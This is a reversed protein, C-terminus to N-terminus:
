GREGFVGLDIIVDSGEFNSTGHVSTRSASIPLIRRQRLGVRPPRARRIPLIFPTRESGPEPLPAPEPTAFPAALRQQLTSPTSNTSNRWKTRHLQLNWQADQSSVCHFTANIRAHSNPRHSARSPAIPPPRSALGVGALYARIAQPETLTAIIKMKGGCAPCETVDVRFVRALLRAWSLRYVPQPSSPQETQDCGESVLGQFSAIEVQPM